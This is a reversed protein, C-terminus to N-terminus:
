ATEVEPHWEQLRFTVPVTFQVAPWAGTGAAYLPAFSNCPQMVVSDCGLQIGQSMDRKKSWGAAAL